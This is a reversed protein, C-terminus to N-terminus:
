RKVLSLVSLGCIGHRIKRTYEHFSKQDNL